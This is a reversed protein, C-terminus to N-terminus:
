GTEGGERPGVWEVDVSRELFAGMRDAARSVAATESPSLADLMRVQVRVGRRSLVRHWAGRVRGGIVLVNSLVSGFAFLTPDFRGDPHDLAARDRYGVTLEDFNPLLHAAASRASRPRSSPDFWYRKGDILESALGAPAAAGAAPAEAGIEAAGAAGQAAEALTLGSWWALDQVQAPGRSRFYRHALRCLAQERDLVPARPVRGDFLAYTFERGRRPGSVILADLEAAIILHPLRQGDPAIGAARLVEGLESRTLQGGGALVTTFATEARTIIAADLELDRLRGAIGARIRPATLALLWRIDGPLVFHWTPRLVHTRLIAGDDFLRNVTAATAARTRQGLAWTAAPYDQSQVAGLWGVVEAAGDLPDGALRQSHLRRTAIDM